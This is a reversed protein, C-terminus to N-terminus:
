TSVGVQKQFKRVSELSEQDKGALISKSEKMKLVSDKTPDMPTVNGMFTVIEDVHPYIAM